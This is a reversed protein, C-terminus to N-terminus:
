TDEQVHVALLEQRTLDTRNILGFPGVGTLTRTVAATAIVTAARLSDETVSSGLAAALAGAHSDGAGTTDVVDVKDGFVRWAGGTHPLVLSGEADLRAVVSCGTRRRLDLAVQRPDTGLQLLQVRSPLVVDTTPAIDHFYDWGREAIARQDPDVLVISPRSRGALGADPASRLLTRTGASTTADASREVVPETEDLEHTPPATALVRRGEPSNLIWLTPVPGETTHSLDVGANALLDYIDGYPLQARLRVRTATGSSADAFAAGLRAGLAAYVGPGGPQGYAPSHGVTVLHDRSVGGQIEVTSM